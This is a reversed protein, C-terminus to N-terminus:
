LDRSLHAFLFLKTNSWRWSSFIKSFCFITSTRGELWFIVDHGSVDINVTTYEWIIRHEIDIYYYEGINNREIFITYLHILSFAPIYLFTGSWYRSQEFSTSLHTFISVLLYYLLCDTVRFSPESYTSSRAVTFSFHTSPTKWPILCFSLFISSCLYTTISYPSRPLIKVLYYIIINENETTERLEM